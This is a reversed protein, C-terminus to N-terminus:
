TVTYRNSNRDITEIDNESTVKNGNQKEIDIFSSSGNKLNVGQHNDNNGNVSRISETFKDNEVDRNDLTKKVNNTSKTDSRGDGGDLRLVDGSRHNENNTTLVDAM